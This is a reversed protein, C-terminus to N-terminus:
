LAEEVQWELTWGAAVMNPRAHLVADIHQGPAVTRPPTVPWHWNQWHCSPYCPYNSLEIGDGLTAAFYGVFGQLTGAATIELRCPIAHNREEMDRGFHIDEVLFPEALERPRHRLGYLVPEPTCPLELAARLDFGHFDSRWVGRFENRYEVPVLYTRLREPVVRGGAKLNRRAFARVCEGINEDSGFDGILENVIVDVPEDLAVERVDGQVLRVRDDAHNAQVIREAVELARPRIDVAYVRSAGARAAMLALIATGTGLDAVVDGPQVALAIAARYRMMRVEDALMSQYYLAPHSSETFSPDAMM